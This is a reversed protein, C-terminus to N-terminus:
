RCSCAFATKKRSEAAAEMSHSTSKSFDSMESFDEVQGITLYSAAQFVSPTTDRHSWGWIYNENCGVSHKELFQHYEDQFSVLSHHDEQDRIYMKVQDVNSQSVSFVGYGAQWSFKNSLNGKMWVSSVRKLEKVVDAM